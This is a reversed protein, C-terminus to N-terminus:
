KRKTEKAQEDVDTLCYFRKGGPLNRQEFTLLLPPNWPPMGYMHFLAALANYVGKSCAEYTDGSPSILVSRVLEKVEGDDDSAMEVRHLLIDSVTITEDMKNAIRATCSNLAKVFAKRQQPTERSLSTYVQRRTGIIDMAVQEPTQVVAPLNEDSM